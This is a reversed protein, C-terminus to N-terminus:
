PAAACSRGLRDLVCATSALGQNRSLPFFLDCAPLVSPERISRLTLSDMVGPQCLGGSFAQEERKPPPDAEGRFISGEKVCSVMSVMFLMILICRVSTVVCIDPIDTKM